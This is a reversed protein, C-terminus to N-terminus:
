KTGATGAGPVCTQLIYLRTHVVGGVKFSFYLTVLGARQSKVTVRFNEGDLHLPAVATNDDCRLSQGCLM